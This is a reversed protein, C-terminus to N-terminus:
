KPLLCACKCCYPSVHISYRRCMYRIGANPVDERPHIGVCISTDPWANVLELVCLCVSLCVCLCVPLCVCCIYLLMGANTFLERAYTEEENVRVIATAGLEQMMGSVDAYILM